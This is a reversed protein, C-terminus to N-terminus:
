QNGMLGIIKNLSLTFIAVVWMRVYKSRPSPRHLAVTENDWTAKNGKGLEKIFTNAPFLYLIPIGLWTGSVLTSYCRGLAQGFNPKKGEHTRVRIGFIAKGPTTGMLAICAAGMFPWVILTRLFWDAFPAAEKSIKFDPIIAQFAVLLIMMPVVAITLDFFGAWLREWPKSAYDWEGPDVKPNTPSVSDPGLPAPNPEVSPLPAEFPNAKKPEGVQPADSSSGQFM